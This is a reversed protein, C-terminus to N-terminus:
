LNISRSSVTLMELQISFMYQKRTPPQKRAEVMISVLNAVKIMTTVQLFILTNGELWAHGCCATREAVAVWSNVQVRRPELISMRQIVEDRYRSMGVLGCTERSCAVLESLDMGM